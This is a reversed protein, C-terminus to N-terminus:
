HNSDDDKGNKLGLQFRDRWKGKPKTSNRRKNKNKYSYNHNSEIKVDSYEEEFAEESYDDIDKNKREYWMQTPADGNQRMAERVAASTPPATRFRHIMEAVTATKM